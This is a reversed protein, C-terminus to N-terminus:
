SIESVLEKQSYKVDFIHLINIPSLKHAVPEIYSHGYFKNRSSTKM